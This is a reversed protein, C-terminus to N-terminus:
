FTEQPTTTLIRSQQVVERGQALLAISKTGGLEVGAFYPGAEM